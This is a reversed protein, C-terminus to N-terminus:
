SGETPKVVPVIDLGDYEGEDDYVPGIVCAGADLCRDKMWTQKMWVLTILLLTIFLIGLIFVGGGIEIEFEAESKHRTHTAGVEIVADIEAQTMTDTKMTDKQTM